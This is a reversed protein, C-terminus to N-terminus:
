AAEAADRMERLARRIIRSVHMQSVGVREGIERQSLDQGFRLELVLRERASLMSILPRIAAVDEVTEYGDDTSGVTDVLTGDGDDALRGLPADLSWADARRTVERAELVQEVELGMHEALEAPTPSHGLMTTLEALTREVKLAREQLERPVHAAWRTDRFWRKLEGLITPIAFSALSVERTPDFRDVAKVLGLYAVQTLDDVASPTSAYRQALRRALPLHQLVLERKENDDPAIM